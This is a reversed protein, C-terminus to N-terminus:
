VKHKTPIKLRNQEQTNKFNAFLVTGMCAGSHIALGIITLTTM